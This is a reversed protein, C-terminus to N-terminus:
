SQVGLVKTIGYWALLAAEARNHHKVLPWLHSNAPFIRTAATRAADSKERDTRGAPVKLATKWDRPLTLHLPLGCAVIAMYPAGFCAGLTVGGRQNPRQGGSEIDELVALDPGIASLVQMLSWLKHNDLRERARRSVTLTIKPFDHVDVTPVHGPTYRVIALAGTVGPDIGLVYM